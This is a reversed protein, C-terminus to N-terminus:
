KKRAELMADALDYAGKAMEKYTFAQAADEIVEPDKTEVAKMFTNHTMAIVGPLARGAFWDRLATGDQPEADLEPPEDETRFGTRPFAPGEDNEKSM